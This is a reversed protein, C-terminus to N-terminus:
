DRSGESAQEANKIRRRPRPPRKLDLGLLAPALLAELAPEALETHLLEDDLCDHHAAYNRMVAYNVFAAIVRRALPEGHEIDADHVFPMLRTRPLHRLNAGKKTGRGLQEELTALDKVQLKRAVLKGAAVVRDAFGDPAHTGLMQGLLKETHLACLVLFEVPTHERISAPGDDEQRYHEHLRRFSLCFRRLPVSHSWWRDIRDRIGPEDLKAKQGVVSSFARLYVEAEEPFHLKALLDERPLADPLPTWGRFQRDAPHGWFQDALDVPEGSVIQWFALAYEIDQQLHRLPTKLGSESRSRFSWDAHLTLLVDRIDSRIRESSLGLSTALTRAASYAESWPQVLAASHAGLLTRFRSLWDFVPRRNLWEAQRREIWITSSLQLDPLKRKITRLIAGARTVNRVPSFLVTAQLM